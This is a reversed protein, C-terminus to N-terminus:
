RPISPCSAMGPGLTPSSNIPGTRDANQLRTWAFRSFRTAPWFLDGDGSILVVPGNIQEVPIVAAALEEDTLGSAFPLPEGQWTFAPAGMSSAPLAVGSGSVSFAAKIEPYYSAALLTAEGGRAYGLMGISEAAVEPRAQLWAIAAGFTELPIRELAPPGPRIGFYSIALAAYGHIALLAATARILPSIGGESGGIVIVAPAPTGTPEIPPVYVAVLDRTVVEEAEFGDPLFTREVTAAGVPEGDISATITVPYSGVPDPDFWMEALASAAWIFAMSDAVTFDGYIPPTQSCAITGTSDAIWTAEAGWTRARSDLFSSQITVEVEPELGTIVIDFAEDYRVTHPSVQLAADGTVPTAGPSASQALVHAPLTAALSSAALFQRRSLHINPMRNSVSNGRRHDLVIAALHM